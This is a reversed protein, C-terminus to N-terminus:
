KTKEPKLLEEIMANNRYDCMDSHIKHLKDNVLNLATIDGTEIASHSILYMIDIIKDLYLKVDPNSKVYMDHFYDLNKLTLSGQHFSPSAQTVGVIDFDYISSNLSELNDDIDILRRKHHDPLMSSCKPCIVSRNYFNQIETHFDINCNKCKLVILM